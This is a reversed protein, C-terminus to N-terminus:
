SEEAAMLERGAGALNQLFEKGKLVSEGVGLRWFMQLLTPTAKLFFTMNVLSRSQHHLHYMSPLVSESRMSLVEFLLPLSNTEILRDFLIRDVKQKYLYTFVGFEDNCDRRFNSLASRDGHLHRDVARSGIKGAIIAPKIGDGILAGCMGAADGLLLAHDNMTQRLPGGIPILGGHRLVPEWSDLRIAGREVLSNMFAKLRRDHYRYEHYNAIGIQLVRQGNHSNPVVWGGYGPCDDVGWFHYVTKEAGPLLLQGPYVGEGCALYHRNQDLDSERAVASRVGDCGVIFRTQIREVCGSSRVRIEVPFERSPEFDCGLFATGTRIGVNDPLVKALSKLIKGPDTSYLWTFPLRSLIEGNFDPGTFSIGTIANGGYDELPIYRSLLEVSTRTCLGTTNMNEGVTRKSELLLVSYQSPLTKAFTLGAFGAGVVVVDYKQM